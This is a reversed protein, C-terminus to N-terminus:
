DNYFDRKYSLKPKLVKRHQELKEKFQNLIGIDENIKHIDKKLFDIKEYKKEKLKKWKKIQEIYWRIRLQHRFKKMSKEPLCDECILFTKKYEPLIIKREEYPKLTKYNRSRHGEHYGANYIEYSEIITGCSACKHYHISM